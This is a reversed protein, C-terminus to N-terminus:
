SLRVGAECDQYFTFQRVGHNSATHTFTVPRAKIGEKTEYTRGGRPRSLGYKRCLADVVAARTNDDTESRPIEMKRDPQPVDVEYQM